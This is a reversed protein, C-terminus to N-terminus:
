YELLTARRRRSRRREPVAIDPHPISSSPAWRHTRLQQNRRERQREAGHRRKRDVALGPAYEPDIAVVGAADNWPRRRQAGIAIVRGRLRMAVAILTDRPDRAHM